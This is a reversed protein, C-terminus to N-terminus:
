QSTKDTAEAARTKDQPCSQGESQRQLAEAENALIEAIERYRQAKAPDSETKARQRYYAARDLLDAISPAMKAM